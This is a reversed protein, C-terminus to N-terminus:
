VRKITLTRYFEDFVEKPMLVKGGPNNPDDLTMYMSCVSNRDCEQRMPRGQLSVYVPESGDDVPITRRAERAQTSIDHYKCCMMITTTLFVLWLITAAVTAISLYLVTGKNKAPCDRMVCDGSIVLDHKISTKTPKVFVVDNEAHLANRVFIPGIHCTRRVDPFGTSTMTCTFVAGNHSKRIRLIAEASVMNEDTLNRSVVPNSKESSWTLTVDPSSKASTCELKLNDNEFLTTTSDPNRECLPYGKAPLSYIQVRVSDSTIVSSVGRAYKVVNCM